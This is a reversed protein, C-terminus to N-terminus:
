AAFDIFRVIKIFELVGDIIWFKFKIIIKIQIM